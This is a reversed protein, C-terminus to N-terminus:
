KFARSVNFGELVIKELIPQIKSPELGNDKLSREVEEEWRSCKRWWEARTQVFFNEIDDYMDAINEYRCTSLFTMSRFRRDCATLFALCEIFLNHDFSKLMICYTTILQNCENWRHQVYKKYNFFQQFRKERKEEQYNNYKFLLFLLSSILTGLFIFFVFVYFIEFAM